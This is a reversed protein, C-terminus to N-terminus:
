AAHEWNRRLAEDEVQRQMQRAYSRAVARLALLSSPASTRQWL